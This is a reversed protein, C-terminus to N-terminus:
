FRLRLSSTVRRMQNASEPLGFQPSGVVANVSSYTVANLVNTADIRFDMNYRGGLQFTRQVGANMQFQAPGTGSNRGADGWSGPDPARYAAPNLYYGEPAATSEGTLSARTAGSYGTGATPTLFYPTLPLGSGTTMQGILTWGKLLAGQWGDILAGGAVGVGTSYQFQVTMLHRQDFSSPAYEADLNLWDQAFATGSLNAGQYSAANDFARALTYQVTATFGSRLRRRVQIQGAHRSSTGDSTLYVFGAPCAACPNVGGRPYTNPLFERILGTGRSGLYSANITLSAPLDRQISAQWNHASGNRFDPDVAFTNATLGEPTTFGNALTLRNDPTSSVSLANSLPPQQAMNNTLSRYLNTNRYIGYGARIVISSGPVPRWAVALRPQIGALDPRVLSSPYSEGTLAGTPDTAVVPAIASFDPAVDLNVLRGQLETYPSEYDWRVGATVTLSPGVRWDDTIYADYSNGRFYKDANGYAIGSTSPFGLMFDAFDFGSGAGTFSFRGRPDQQSDIDVQNHRVDGGITFSHRGRSFLFDGGVANTLNRDLGPLGDSLGAIGSAFSLAPPGWNAPEQNNGTIGAEGSVNTRYAFYPIAESRQQTLQYRVRSSALLGFRHSWNVQVDAAPAVNEDEFGFLTTSDTGSHQYSVSGQIQNRNNIVQTLRTQVSISRTARLTLAEYNYRGTAGATAAPYYQLLSAAQPSIRDPPIVNGPFPLGTLPDRIQVLNGSADRTESFDGRRERVSPMLAPQTSADDRVARQFGVFFNLRNQVGPLKVPGGFTSLLNVNYYDPQLTPRGTLSYPQADWFSNSFEAGVMGNYLSGPRRRNNGFAAAQAFPSAAGNNVSGNILFGDAAAAADAPPDDAAAPAPAPAPNRPATVGARQFGTQPVAVPTRAGSQQREPQGAGPKDPTRVPPPAPPAITKAVEEFPLLTLEWMSPPADPGTTVERSTTSFGRMEVSIAWVGDEVDALRFIGQADTYVVLRHDGRTATVTAGPIAVGAVTVQGYHESAAALSVPVNVIATALVLVYAIARKM